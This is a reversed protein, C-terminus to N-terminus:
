HSLCPVHLLLSSKNQIHSVCDEVVISPLLVGCGRCASQMRSVPFTEIVNSFIGTHSGNTQSIIWVDKQKGRSDRFLRATEISCNVVLLDFFIGLAGAQDWINGLVRIEEAACLLSSIAINSLQHQQAAPSLICSRTGVRLRAALPAASSDYHSTGM